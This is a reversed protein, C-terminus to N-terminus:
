SSCPLGYGYEVNHFALRTIGCRVCVARIVDWQHDSVFYTRRKERALYAQILIEHIRDAEIEQPTRYEYDMM